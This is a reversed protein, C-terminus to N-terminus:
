ASEDLLLQRLRQEVETRRVADAEVLTVHGLKRAPRASKGYLHVHLGPVSLLQELPPLKGILNYMVSPAVLETSGLPWDLIARLHNEFQSCVAGEISWHGSNHVRPAMENALLTEGVVFFEIALVGVYNLEELIARAYQEAQRQLTPSGHPAPVESRRLIGGGHRNEVLPYYRLEGRASRVALISIEADFRVLQEALLPQGRLREWAPQVDGPTWLPAQGKGDYGLRRTKLMAPFGIRTLARELDSLSDVPAFPPVPLGMRTFFEKERLRDQGVELALPNPSVTVWQSLRQVAELPVNEFEYTAVTLDHAFALLANSDDFAARVREGVQEAPAEPAPDLFRFRLGLPYGALALMRGLQGAGLIGVREM